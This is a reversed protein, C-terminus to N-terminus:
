GIYRPPVDKDEKEVKRRREIFKEYYNTLDRTISPVIKSLVSDFHKMRIEKAKKDERLVAMAAERCMSEIDAGSFGDTKRALEKLDVDKALPMKKTHVKFIELRSKYDPAPVVVMRDFRGPRLLAPDVIDPRNTAAMVVVGKLEELGSMESLLQSVVTETSNSGTFLGRRPAVSDIEDFFIIAPAVQRARRFMDRISKESEGVWKSFVEPGKISIFNAGAENAVAKALLTKGTGPPGYLLIGRPPSIGMKEFAEPNKLPWEVMEQLQQKVDDLGGIDNWKVNPIEVLVERMASPEVIRLADEFDEKTVILKEIIEKPLEEEEKWKIEPLIRRLASMAAEKAVAWIDSGVFGYTIDALHNLDVDKALPMNRAHIKFIELRGDRDPVPFEIERDFRGARRIAPDLSNPRNTAAIVIVKGRKKLGDMQTLLTSVVRREVEGTVEERKPAIADIEDIFIISPANKEAEEFMRKINQESNHAFIGGIGAVFNECPDVSIDYVHEEGPIENIEDVLDWYIDNTVLNTISDAFEANVGFEAVSGEDVFNSLVGKGITGSNVWQRASPMKTLLNRMKDTVPIQETRVWKANSTYNSIKENKEPQMFGIEKFRELNEVGTICIRNSGKGNSYCKAVINFYLMLYMLDDSMDKSFTSGEVTPVGHQNLYVSGDGSLYGKLFMAIREKSLNFIINPVAKNRAGGKLGFVNKMIKCLVTSSVHIDVANEKSIYGSVKGFLRECLKKVTEAENKHVSLRVNGNKNYSGEAVWLGLFTLMDDDLALRAPLHRTRSYIRIDDPNIDVKAEKALRLFQSVRIGVNKNLLSWIYNKDCDLIEAVKEKGIRKVFEKVYGQVNKVRLGFDNVKLHDLLNIEKLNSQAPIYRPVAIFSKKPILDSTRVGKIKGGDLTFLSHYDTVRIRRGSRTKVELMKGTSKHKILDKVQAFKVKGKEDFSLVKFNMDGREVLEGISKRKILNDELIVIKEDYPLSEGYWKSM